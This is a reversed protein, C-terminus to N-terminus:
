ARLIQIHMYKLINGPLVPALIDKCKEATSNSPVSHAGEISTSLVSKRQLTKLGIKMGILVITKNKKKKKRQM